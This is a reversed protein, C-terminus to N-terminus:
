GGIPSWEADRNCGGVHWVANHGLLGIKPFNQPAPRVRHYDLYWYITLSPVRVRHASLLGDVQGLQCGWPHLM